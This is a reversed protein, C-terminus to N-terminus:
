HRELLSGKRLSVACSQGTANVPACPQQTHWQLLRGQRRGSCLMQVWRGMTTDVASMNVTKSHTSIHHFGKLVKGADRFGRVDMLRIKKRSTAAIAEMLDLLGNISEPDTLRFNGTRPYFSKPEM